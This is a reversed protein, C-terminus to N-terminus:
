AATAARRSPAFVSTGLWHWLREANRQGGHVQEEGSALAQAPALDGSWVETL